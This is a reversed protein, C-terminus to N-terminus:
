NQLIWDSAQVLYKNLEGIADMAEKVVPAGPAQVFAKGSNQCKDLASLAVTLRNKLEKGINPAYDNLYNMISNNVESNLRAGGYLTYQISLINGKFDTYSNFSYPSEIYNPDDEEPTGDEGIHTSTGGSTTARYAQGMKQDAVEGCINSCGGIFIEELVKRWSSYTSQATGAALMNEGYSLGNKAVTTQFEEANQQKCVTIRQIHAAAAKSGLWSVELQYCKDRLDGAIASAFIVEEKGHVDLGTFNSDDEVADNNFISVNRNSGNRFFIFEIGHFGLNEPTLNGETRAWFIGDESNLKSIKANDGLDKALTPLDLPWTDIHPDIDFDSAAGYLFAESEEWYARTLKYTNCIADIESQTVNTGANLKIRLGNIQTYLKEAADALNSYTPFVVDNLYTNVINKLAEQKQSETTQANGNNDDDDDGCATFTMSLTCAAAFLLAYKFIKRM